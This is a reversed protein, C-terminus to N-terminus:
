NEKEMPSGASTDKPPEEGFLELDLDSLETDGMLDALLGEEPDAEWDSKGETLCKIIEQVKIDEKKDSTSGKKPNTAAARLTTSENTLSACHVGHM